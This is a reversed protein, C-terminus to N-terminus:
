PKSAQQWFFLFEGGTAGRETRRRRVRRHNFRDFCEHLLHRLDVDGAAGAAGAARLPMKMDDFDNRRSMRRKSLTIRGSRRWSRARRGSGSVTGGHLKWRLRSESPQRGHFKAQRYVQSRPWLMDAAAMAQFRATATCRQCQFIALGAMKQSVIGMTM